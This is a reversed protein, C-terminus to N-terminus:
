AAEGQLCKFIHQSFTNETHDPAGIDQVQGNDILLIEDALRELESTNHSTYLLCPADDAFCQGLMSLMQQSAIIDVGLLVEDLLWIDRPQAIYAALRTAAQEGTSLKGYRSKADIGLIGLCNLWRDEQWGPKAILKAITQLRMTNPFSASPSLAVVPQQSNVKISGRDPAIAKSILKLLSSKGSGNRGILGYCTGAELSLHDIALSFRRSRKLVVNDMQIM